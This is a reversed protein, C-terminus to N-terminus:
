NKNFDGFWIPQHKITEPSDDIFVEVKYGAKLAADNKWAQGAFVIPILNDIARIVEAGMEGMNSRNTLCIVKHGKALMILILEKWMDPDATFTNDFDIAIIM